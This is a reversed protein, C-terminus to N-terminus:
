LSRIFEDWDKPSAKEKKLTREAMRRRWTTISQIPKGTLVSIEAPTFGAKLLTNIRHGECKISLNLQHLEQQFHPYYKDVLAYLEEWEHTTVSAKGNPAQAKQKLTLYIHENRLCCEIDKRKEQKLEAERKLLSLLEKKRQLELIIASKEQQATALQHELNQLQEEKQQLYQLNYQEAKKRLQELRYLQVQHEMDKRKKYQRYAMFSLALLIFAGSLLLLGQRQRANAKQLRAKEKEHMQRNYIAYALRTSETQTIRALSDGYALYADLYDSAQKTRGEQCAILTLQQAAIKKAYITGCDMLRTYYWTASDTQGTQYYYRAALSYIASQDPPFIDTLLQPLLTHTSDPLDEDLYFSALQLQIHKILKNQQLATSVLYAKRYYQLASDPQHLSRYVWALDNLGHAIGISDKLAIDYALSKTYMELAEPYMDQYFFLTGMQSLAKSRLPIMKDKPLTELAKNFYELAHPAYGLDAEVRAAYYYAEPLHIKDGQREYYDLVALALSDSTHPIYAKDQAKIRLLQYYMQTPLNEEAMEAYLTNLLSIASDPNIETLSEAMSLQQPVRESQCAALFTLLFAMYLTIAPKM